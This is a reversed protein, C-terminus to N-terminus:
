RGTGVHQEPIYGYVAPLPVSATLSEGAAAVVPVPMVAPLRLGGVQLYQGGNTSRAVGGGWGSCAGSHRSHLPFSQHERGVTKMSVHPQFLARNIQLGQTSHTGIMLAHVTGNIQSSRLPNGPPHLFVQGTLEM